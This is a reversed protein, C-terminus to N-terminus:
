LEATGCRGRAYACIGANLSLDVSCEFLKIADLLDDNKSLISMTEAVLAALVLAQLLLDSRVLCCVFASPQLAVLRKQIAQQESRCLRSSRQSVRAEVSVCPSLHM